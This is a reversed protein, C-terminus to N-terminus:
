ICPVTLEATLSYLEVSICVSKGRVGLASNGETERQPSSMFASTVSFAALGLESVVTNANTLMLEETQPAAVGGSRCSIESQASLSFFSSRLQLFCPYLDSPILPLLLRGAILAPQSPHFALCMVSSPVDVVLDPRQPNLGRRDLNWTCVYSKETSWDGGDLRFLLFTCRAKDTGCLSGTWCLGAIDRQDNLHSTFPSSPIM